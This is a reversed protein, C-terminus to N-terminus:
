TFKIVNAPSFAYEDAKKSQRYVSMVVGIALYVALNSSGGASFFPLTIGIVPLLRLCMGVNILTQGIIMSAIGMDIFYGHGDKATKSNYMIKIVIIAIIGIVAIAGLFGLEEGSVSLIMDNKAEPIAASQVYTGNFLGKGTVKGSGIANIAQNQQYAADRAYEEADYYILALFRSKQFDKILGTSWALPLAAAVGLGGVLFYSWHLGAAILMGLVILGFVLASGDDGTIIVLGIPVIAHVGLLLVNKISNISDKVADLHVAFTIVFALKVVESPQFYFSDTIKLWCRSDQRADPAVGFFITIVMLILGAAGIVWFFKVFYEYNFYSLIIAGIIGIPVAVAMSKFESSILQGEVLTNKTASYVLLMGYTSAVLCLFLLFLDTQKFAVAIRNAFSKENM